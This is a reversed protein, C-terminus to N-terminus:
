KIKTEIPKEGLEEVKSEEKIRRSPTETTDEIKEEDKEEERNQVSSSEHNGISSPNECADKVENQQTNEENVEM